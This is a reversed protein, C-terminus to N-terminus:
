NIHTRQGLHTEQLCCATPEQKKLGTQWETNKKIPTKFENLNLTSTSLYTNIAM